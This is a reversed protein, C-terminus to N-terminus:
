GSDRYVERSLGCKERVGSGGEREGLGDAVDVLGPLVEHGDVKAPDEVACM